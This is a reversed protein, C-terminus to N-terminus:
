RRTSRPTTPRRSSTGPATSTPTRSAASAALHDRRCHGAGRRGADGTAVRPRRGRRGRDPAAGAAAGRPRRRGGGGPPRGPTLGAPYHPHQDVGGMMADAPVPGHRAGIRPSREAYLGRGSLLRSSGRGGPLGSGRRGAARRHRRERDGALVDGVALRELVVLHRRDPSVEGCSDHDPKGSSVLLKVTVQKSGSAGVGLPKQCQTSTSRGASQVESGAPAPASPASRGPLANM